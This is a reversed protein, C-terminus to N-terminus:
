DGGFKYVFISIFLMLIPIIMIHTPIFEAFFMLTGALSSIASAVLFASKTDADNFKMVILIITFIALLIMSFLLSGSADNVAKATLYPDTAIDIATTNYIAM